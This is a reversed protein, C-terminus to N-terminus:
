FDIGKEYRRISDPAPRLLSASLAHQRFTDLEVAFPAQAAMFAAQVLNILEIEFDRRDQRAHFSDDNAPAVVKPQWRSKFGEIQRSLIEQAM